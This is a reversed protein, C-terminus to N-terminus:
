FILLYYIFLDRLMIYLLFLPCMGDPPLQVAKKLNGSGLTKKTYDSLTKRKMSNHKKTAKMTKSSSGDPFIKDWLSM